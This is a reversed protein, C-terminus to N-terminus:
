WFGSNDEKVVEKQETTKANLEREKNEITRTLALYVFDTVMNVVKEFDDIDLGIESRNGMLDISLRVHLNYCFELLEDRSLWGQLTTKSIRAHLAQMVLQVGEDNVLEKGIDVTDTFYQQKDHDFFEKEREGRLLAEIEQKTEDPNLRWEIGRDRMGQRQTIDQEVEAM